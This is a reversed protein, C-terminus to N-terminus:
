IKGFNATAFRELFSASRIERVMHFQIFRLMVARMDKILSLPLPLSLSLDGPESLLAHLVEIAKADLSLM